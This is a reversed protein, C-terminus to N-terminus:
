RMSAVFTACVATGADIEAIARKWPVAEIQVPENMLAFVIRLMEPYFGAAGGHADAYMVPPDMADIDVREQARVAAGALLGALGMALTLAAFCSKRM